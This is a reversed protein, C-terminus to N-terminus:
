PYAMKELFQLMQLIDFTVEILTASLLNWSM